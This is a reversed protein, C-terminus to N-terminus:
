SELIRDVLEDVSWRSAPRQVLYIRVQDMVAAFLSFKGPHEEPLLPGFICKQLTDFKQVGGLLRIDLNYQPYTQLLYLARLPAAHLSMAARTPVAAKMRRWSFRPLDSIDTGLAAASDETLHIQPIGPLAEVKGSQDLQLATIDDTLMACGRQLLAALTTSKGAGSLGSVAIAGLPTVAANAHLVLMGRQLLLAALVTDLFFFALLSDEASPSRQLTVRTGGEAL